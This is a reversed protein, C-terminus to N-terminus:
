ALIEVGFPEAVHQLWEWHSLAFSRPIYLDYVGEASVHLLVGVGHMLTQAVSGQPLEGPHTDIPVLRALLDRAAPGTIRIVTRAHGIDTIVAEETAFNASLRSLLDSAGPVVFWLREPGVQLITTEGSVGMRMSLPVAAGAIGAAKAASNLFTDPWATLQVIIRGPLESLTVGPRSVAAGHRGASIHGHLASLIEAV